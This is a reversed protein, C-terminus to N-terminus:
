PLYALCSEVDHHAELAVTFRHAEDLITRYRQFMKGGVGVRQRFNECFVAGAACPVRVCRHARQVHSWDEIHAFTAAAATSRLHTRDRFFRGRQNAFVLARETTLVAIPQTAAFPDFPLEAGLDVRCKTRDFFM